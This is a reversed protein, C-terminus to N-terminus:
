TTLSKANMRAAIPTATKQLREALKISNAKGETKMWDVAMESGCEKQIEVGKAWTARGCLVGNFMSGSERAFTLTELFLDTDVGASLFIFPLSTIESQKRFFHAADTRNYVFDKDAFGEVYHM